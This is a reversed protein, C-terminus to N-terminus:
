FSFDQQSLAGTISIIDSKTVRSIFSITVEYSDTQVKPEVNVNVLQIRPEFRSVGAFIAEGILLATTEDVPEGLYQTLNLGFSPSLPYQGPRTNFLNLFSNKIAQTDLDVAIDGAYANQAFVGGVTANQPEIDFRMDVFTSSDKTTTVTRKFQTLEIM